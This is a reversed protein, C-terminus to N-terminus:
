HITMSVPHLRLMTVLMDEKRNGFVARATAVPDFDTRTPITAMWQRTPRLDSPEPDATAKSRSKCRNMIM